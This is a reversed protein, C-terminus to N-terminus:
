GDLQRLNRLWASFQKYEVPVANKSKLFAHLAVVSKFRRYIDGYGIFNRCFEVLDKYQEPYDREMRQYWHEVGCTRANPEVEKAAEFLPNGSKKSAVEKDQSSNRLILSKGLHSFHWM